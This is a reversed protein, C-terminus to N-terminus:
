SPFEQRPYRKHGKGVEIFPERVELAPALNDKIFIPIRARDCARVIEEVWEIKPATKLSYPTQAGIIVWDLIANLPRQYEWDRLQFQSLLPEISLFKVRASIQPLFAMAWRYSDGDTVTAGIWCNRPFPSWKVLNQPQKTLFIFTHWPESKVMDFIEFMWEPKIWDGFLEITSGVFVRSQNPISLVENLVEPVFRIEPNWGFRKYLRRAYCYPKGQNDKCDVPCLCKVPNITFDAWGISKKVNNM